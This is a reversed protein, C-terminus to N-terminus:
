CRISSPGMGSRRLDSADVLGTDSRAYGTLVDAGGGVSNAFDDGNRGLMLDNGDGGFMTDKGEGGDLTVPLTARQGFVSTAAL